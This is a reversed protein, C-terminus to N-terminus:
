LCLREYLASFKRTAACASLQKEFLQRVEERLLLNEQGLQRNDFHLYCNDYKTVEAERRHAAARRALQESITASNRAATANAEGLVQKLQAITHAQEQQCAAHAAQRANQKIVM